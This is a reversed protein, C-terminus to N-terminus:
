RARAVRILLALAVLAVVIQALGVYISRFFIGLSLDGLLLVGLVPVYYRTRTDPVCIAYCQASSAMYVTRRVASDATLRVSFLVLQSVNRGQFTLLIGRIVM